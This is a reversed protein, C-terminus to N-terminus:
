EIVFLFIFISILPLFFINESCLQLSKCEKGASSSLALFEGLFVCNQRLYYCRARMEKLVGVYEVNLSERWEARPSPFCHRASRMSFHRMIFTVFPTSASFGLFVILGGIKKRFAVRRAFCDDRSFHVFRSHCHTGCYYGNEANLSALVGMTVAVNCRSTRATYYNRM